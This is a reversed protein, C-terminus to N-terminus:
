IGTKTTFGGAKKVFNEAFEPNSPYYLHPFGLWYNEGTHVCPYTKGTLPKLATCDSGSDGSDCYHFEHGRIRGGKPLFCPSNEAIEVYGFRVLKETYYCKEPLVGAMKHEKGERDTIVSHLYMFGGCEAVIPLKDEWARGIASLMYIIM